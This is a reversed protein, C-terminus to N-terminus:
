LDPSLGLLQLLTFYSYIWPRSVGRTKELGGAEWVLGRKFALQQQLLAGQRSLLEAQLEAEEAEEKEKRKREEEESRRKEEELEKLRLYERREGEDMEQLKEREEEARREEELRLRELEVGRRQEEEERMRQLRETQRKREEQRRREKERQAQVKRDSVRLDEARKRREEELESKMKEETRGREEQQRKREEEERERRKREEEERRKREEEKQERRKREVEQRRREAQEALRLSAGEEEEELTKRTPGDFEPKMPNLTLREETVMVISCSSLRGRSSARGAASAPTAGGECSSSSSSATSRRPAAARLSSVSQGGGDTSLRGTDEDAHRRTASPRRTSRVGSAGQVEQSTTQAEEEEGPEESDGVPSETHRARGRRSRKNSGASEEEEAEEEAEEEEEEKPRGVGRREDREEKTKVQGEERKEGEREKTRKKDRNSRREPTGSGTKRRRGERKTRSARRGDAAASRERKVEKKGTSTAAEEVDKRTTDKRTTDKRTTDKRTTDKREEDEAGETTAENPSFDQQSQGSSPEEEEDDEEEAEADGGRLEERGVQERLPPMPTLDRAGKVWKKSVAGAGKAKKESTVAAPDTYSSSSCANTETPRPLGLLEHASQRHHIVGVPGDSKLEAEGETHTHEPQLVIVWPLKEGDASVVQLARERADGDAHSPCDYLSLHIIEGDPGLILSGVSKGNQLDKLELPLVGRVAGRNADSPGSPDQLDPQRNQLFAFSSQKGPGRRGAVLGLLGVPPPEEGPELLIMSPLGGGGGGGGGTEKRHCQRETKGGGGRQQGSTEEEKGPFLLPLVRPQQRLGNPNEHTQFGVREAKPRADQQTHSEAIPPLCRAHHEDSGPGEWRLGDTKEWCPAACNPYRVMLPPLLGARRGHRNGSTSREYNGEDSTTIGSDQICCGRDDEVDRDRNVGPHRLEGGASIGVDIDVCTQPEEQEEPTVAVYHVWPPPEMPPTPTRPTCPIQLFLDLRVRKRSGHEEEKDTGRKGAPQTQPQEPSPQEQWAPNLRHLDPALPPHLPPFFLASLRSSPFQTNSYSLIAASLQKVTSLQQGVQQTFQRVVRRKRDRTEPRCGTEMSVLDQSYLLLPGRRTSYTKPLASEAEALLRGGDSLRLLSDQSKWIYYDQPTFCVDLRGGHGGTNGNSSVFRGCGRSLLSLALDKM